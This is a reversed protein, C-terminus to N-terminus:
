GLFSAINDVNSRTSVTRKATVNAPDKVPFESRSERRYKELFRRRETEVLRTKLEAKIFKRFAIIFM